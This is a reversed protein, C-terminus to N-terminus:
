KNPEADASADIQVAEIQIAEPKRTIDTVKSIQPNIVAYVAQHRSRDAAMKLEEIM